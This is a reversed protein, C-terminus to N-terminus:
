RVSKVYFFKKTESPNVVTYESLTTEGEYTYIGYPESSSYIYYKSAGSVGDWELIIDSGSTRITLNSPVAPALPNFLGSNYLDGRYKDYIGRSSSALPYDYVVMVGDDVGVAFELDSDGDLDAVAASNMGPRRLYEIKVPFGDLVAGTAGSYCWIRYNADMYMIDLNGDGDFDALSPASLDNKASRPDLAVPFNPFSTYDSNMIYLKSATLAIIEIDGDNDIDAFSVPPTLDYFNYAKMDLNMGESLAQIQTLSTGDFTFGFLKGYTGYSETIAYMEVTGDDDTDCFSISTQIEKPLLYETIKSRTELDYVLIKTGSNFVIEKDGDGDIDLCAPSHIWYSNPSSYLPFGSMMEFKGYKLDLMYVYGGKPSIGTLDGTFASIMIELDNDADANILVPANEMIVGYIKKQAIIVGTTLDVAKVLVSDGMNFDYNVMDLSGDGNVDGVAFGQQAQLSFGDEVAQHVTGNGNLLSGDASIGAISSTRTNSILKGDILVPNYIEFPSLKYTKGKYLPFPTAKVPDSYAFEYGSSDCLAIKLYVPDYDTKGFSFVKGSIIDFNLKFSSSFNSDSSSYINVGKVQPYTYNWEMNIKGPSHDAYLTITNGTQDIFGFSNSYYTKDGNIAVTFYYNKSADVTFNVSDSVSTFAPINKLTKQGYFSGNEFLKIEAEDIQGRSANLFVPELITGNLIVSSLKLYPVAVPVFIKEDSIKTGNKKRIEMNVVAVSDNVISDPSAFSLNFATVDAYNGVAPLSFRTKIESLNIGSHDASTIVADLSDLAAPNSDLNLRFSIGFDEGDEIVGSGNSDAVSIGDIAYSIEVASNVAYGYTKLFCEQSYYHLYVSDATLNEYPVSFNQSRTKVRGIIKNNETLTVFVTDNPASNFMASVSGSGKRFAGAASIMLTKPERLFPLGSPDGQITYSHNLYLNYGSSYPHGYVIKADALSEGFSRRRNVQRFFYANFNDTLNPFEQASSGIYTVCGGEPNTIAKHSFSDGGFYGPKCAAIFYLGSVKQLMMLDESWIKFDNDKQRILHYDGHSQSYVFNYGRELREIIGDKSFDPSIGEYLSDRIFGAPFETRVNNCYRRGDGVDEPEDGVNMGILFLSSNFNIGYNRESSYYNMTKNIIADIEEETNGPFRGVYVDEYSDPYDSFEFYIGNDNTDINGNLRSYFSDSNIETTYTSVYPLAKGAPVTKYGGGIIVYKLDNSIYKDRIYNRIKIVDSEGTYESYIDEVTKIETIFGQRTKFLKYKEFNDAFDQTTIIALDIKEYIVSKIEPVIISDTLTYDISTMFFLSDNRLYYPNIEMVSFNTHRKVGRAGIEIPKLAPQIQAECTDINTEYYVLGVSDDVLVSTYSNVIIDEAFRDSFQLEKYIVPFRLGPFKLTKYTKEKYSLTINVPDYNWDAQVPNYTDSFVIGTILVLLIVINRGM